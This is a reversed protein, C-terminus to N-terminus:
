FWDVLSLGEVRGFEEVNHTVLTAGHSLATGAILTDIPGISTGRKELAARIRASTRAESPGFPLVTVLSVIDDVQARRRDPSSSKAIGTELEYLVVAPLAIERPPTRLLNEAVRGIGKFFYILSNADLAYMM